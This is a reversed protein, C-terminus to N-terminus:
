PPPTNPQITSNVSGYAINVNSISGGARINANILGGRGPIGGLVSVSTLNLGVGLDIATPASTGGQGQFYGGVTLSNLAGGVAIGSGSPSVILNGGVSLNALNRGVRIQGGSNLLVSGNVTLASTADRGIALQGDHLITLDGQITIPQPADRGVTFRGGDLNMTGITVAGLTAPSSSSSSSSSGPALDGAIAVHGTPGLDVSSVSIATAGGNLDVQSTPGLGGLQLTSVVNSVPTMRGTLEAPAATLGGLQGSKVVLNHIPLLQNLFHYRARTQTINLTTAATTGYAILDIAGKGAPHVNVLGPGSVQILFSGGNSLVPRNASPGTFFSLLERTELAEVIPV